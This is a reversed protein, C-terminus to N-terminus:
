PTYPCSPRQAHEINVSFDLARLLHVLQNLVVYVAVQFLLKKVSREGSSDVFPLLQIFCLCSDTVSSNM